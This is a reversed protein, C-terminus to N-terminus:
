FTALVEDLKTVMEDVHEKEIVLPPVFRVVNSGATIIILGKELAKAAVQGVPIEMELGQMLGWVAVIQSLTMNRLWNMWNRCWIRHSKMYM